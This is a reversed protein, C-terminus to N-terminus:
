TLSWRQNAGGGCTWLVIRSGNATGNGYADLCLGSQVGTITGDANANWQQNTQGNCDWIVVETGNATGNDFADLCKTGYVVLQKRANPVWTQNTGGACDWLQLRTGNTITGRDVDLCRGSQAGVVERGNTGPLPSLEVADLDATRASPNAVTITNTTGKRLSVLASVTGATTSSGTPPLVITTPTQGNVTLTATLPTTGGNTYVISAVSLGTAASSIGNFRLTNAGGGGIRGVKSGGSCGACPEVAASGARTNGAAEAEYTASTTETGTVTLLASGGAPVTRTYGTTPSGLDTAAWADRVRAAGATLGLDTWRVTIPAASATRNLLLVARRGSGSLVRGYVQLGTTDEAVKVGQLGRADQNVM